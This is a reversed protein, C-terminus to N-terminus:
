ILSSKEMKMESIGFCHAFPLFSLCSIESLTNFISFDRNHLPSCGASIAQIVVTVKKSSNRAYSDQIQRKPSFRRERRVEGHIVGCQTQEFTSTWSFSRGKTEAPPQNPQARAESATLNFSPTRRQSRRQTKKTGSPLLNGEWFIKTNPAM